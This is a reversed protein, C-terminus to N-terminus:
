GFASIVLTNKIGAECLADICGAATSGTHIVDDILIVDGSPKKDTKKVPKFAGHLNTMRESNSLRSQPKTNKIRKILNSYVPLNLIRGFSNAIILNQNYGRERIRVPHLPVPVVCKFRYDLVLNRFCQAIKEGIMEAIDIRGNFKM